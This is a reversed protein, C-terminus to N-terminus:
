VFKPKVLSIPVKLVSKFVIDNELKLGGRHIDSPFLVLINYAYLNIKSVKSICNYNILDKSEDYDNITNFSSAFGIEMCESGYVILQFDVFKRHSEFLGGNSLTYSQEIALINSGLDISQEVRYDRHNKCDLSLIRSYISSSKDLASYLYNYLTHLKKNTNFMYEINNIELLLAM